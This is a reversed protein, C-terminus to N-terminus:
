IMKNTEMKTLSVQGVKEVDLGKGVESGFVESGSRLTVKESVVLIM